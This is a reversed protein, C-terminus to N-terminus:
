DIVEDNNEEFKELHVNITRNLKYLDVNVADDIYIFQNNESYKIV